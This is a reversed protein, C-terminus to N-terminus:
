YKACYTPFDSPLGSSYPEPEVGFPHAKMFEWGATYLAAPAQCHGGGHNCDVTFGGAAKMQSDLTASTTAFSVVVMDSQGGHMTMIAPVHGSTEIPEQTIEGGSNPVVAALYGSRLAAMCGSQLGGASCGTSYIRHPDIGQDRVACAAARVILCRMAATAAAHLEEFSFEPLFKQATTDNHNGRNAWFLKTFDAIKGLALPDVGAPHRLIEEMLRKQRLGWISNQDYIIPDVAISAQTLWYALAQEKLPLKQFSPSALQVFGTSGVRDVMTQNDAAPAACLFTVGFLFAARV